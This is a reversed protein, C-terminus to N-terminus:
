HKELRRIQPEIANQNQFYFTTSTPEASIIWYDDTQTQSERNKKLDTQTQSSASLVIKTQTSRPKTESIESAQISTLVFFIFLKM